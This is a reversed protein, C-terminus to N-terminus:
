AVRLTVVGNVDGTIVGFEDRSDPPTLFEITPFIRDLILSHNTYTTTGNATARSSIPITDFDNFVAPGYAVEWDSIPYTWAGGPATLTGVTEWNTGDLSIEVLIDESDTATGEILTSTDAIYASLAPATIEIVPANGDLRFPILATMGETLNNDLAKIQVYYNADPLAGPLPYSFNVNQDNIIQEPLITVSAWTVAETTGDDELFRIEISTEDVKVNDSVTGNVKSAPGMTDGPDPINPNPTTVSIQPIDGSMDVEIPLGDIDAGYKLQLTSSGSPLGSHNTVTLDSPTITLHSVEPDGNGYVTLNYLDIVTISTDNNLYRLDKAHYVVTSINGALDEVEINVGLTESGLVSHNLTFFWSDNTGSNSSLTFSGQGVSVRIENLRLPDFAEGRIIIPSTDQPSSLEPITVMLVPPTNDFFLLMQKETIKGSSDRLYITIDKEGDLGYIADTTDVPIGWSGDPNIVGSVLQGEIDAWVSDVEKDDEITGTLTINGSVYDGNSIGTVTGEPPTLDVRAGLGVLPNKCATVALLAFLSLILVVGTSTLGVSM